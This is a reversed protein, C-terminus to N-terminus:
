SRGPEAFRMSGTKVLLGFPGFVILFWYHLYNYNNLALCNLVGIICIIIIISPGPFQFFTARAFGVLTRLEIRVSFAPPSRHASLANNGSLHLVRTHRRYLNFLLCCVLMVADVWRAVMMIIIVM